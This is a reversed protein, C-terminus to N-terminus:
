SAIAFLARLVGYVAAPVVIVALMFFEVETRTPRPPM